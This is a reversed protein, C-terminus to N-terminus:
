RMVSVRYMSPGRRPRIDEFNQIRRRSAATMAVAPTIASEVAVTMPAIITAGSIVGIRPVASATTRASRSCTTRLTRSTRPPASTTM